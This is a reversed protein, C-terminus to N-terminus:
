MRKLLSLFNRIPHNPPAFNEVAAKLDSHRELSTWPIITKEGSEKILWLSRIHLLKYPKVEKIEDWLILHQGRFWHIGLTSIGVSRETTKQLLWSFLLGGLLFLVIWRLHPWSFTQPLNGNTWGLTGFFWIGVFSIEAIIAIQWFAVKFEAPKVHDAAAMSVVIPRLNAVHTEVLPEGTEASHLLSQLQAEMPLLQKSRAQQNLWYIFAFVAFYFLTAPIKAHLHVPMGWTAILLGIGPPLLYWWLVSGLLRSQTRVSNLEARLSEVITAGAPAPPTARRAHILKWAIFITGGIVILWGLRMIPTRAYFAYCGFVIIVIACAVLERLDRANITRRFQSMKTQMASIVQVASLGPERLPQQQWLKKLEDDNM